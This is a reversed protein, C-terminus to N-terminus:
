QLLIININNHGQITVKLIIKEERNYPGIISIM